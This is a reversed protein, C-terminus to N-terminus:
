ALVSSPAIYFIDGEAVYLCRPPPLEGLPSPWPRPVPGAPAAPAAARHPAELPSRASGSCGVCAHRPQPRQGRRSSGSCAMCLPRPVRHTRPRPELSHLHGSSASGPTDAESRAPDPRCLRPFALSATQSLM